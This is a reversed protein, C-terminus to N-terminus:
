PSNHPPHNEIGHKRSLVMLYGCYISQPCQYLTLSLANAFAGTFPKM